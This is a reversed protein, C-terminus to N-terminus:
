HITQSREFKAENSNVKKIVSENTKPKQTPKSIGVEDIRSKFSSGKTSMIENLKDPTCKEIFKKFEPTKHLDRVFEKAGLKQVAKEIDGPEKNDPANANREMIIMHAAYISAMSVDTPKQITDLNLNGGAFSNYNKSAHEFLQKVEQNLEKDAFEQMTVSMSKAQERANDRSQKMEQKSSLEAIEAKKVEAIRKLGNRRDYDKKYEEYKICSDLGKGGFFKAVRHFFKTIVNPESIATLDESNKPISIPNENYKIMGTKPLIELRHPETEGPKYVYLGNMSQLMLRYKDDFDVPNMNSDYVVASKEPNANNRLADDSVGTWRKIDNEIDNQIYRHIEAEANDPDFTRLEYGGKLSESYMAMRVKFFELRKDPQTGMNCATELIDDETLRQDKQFQNITDALTVMYGGFNDKASEPGGLTNKFEKEFCADMDKGADQDAGMERLTHSIFANGETDVGICKFFDDAMGAAAETTNKRWIIVKNEKAAEYLANINAENPADYLDPYEDLSRISYEESPSLNRKLFAGKVVESDEKRKTRLNMVKINCTAQLLMRDKVNNEFDYGQEKAQNCLSEWWQKVEPRLKSLDAM